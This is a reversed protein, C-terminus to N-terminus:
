QRDHSDNNYGHCQNSDEAAKMRCSNEEFEAVLHRQNATTREETIVLNEVIIPPLM